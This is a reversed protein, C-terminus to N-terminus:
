MANSKYGSRVAWNTYDPDYIFTNRSLFLFDLMVIVLWISAVFAWQIWYGSDYVLIFYM